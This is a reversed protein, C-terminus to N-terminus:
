KTSYKTNMFPSFVIQKQQTCILFRNTITSILSQAEPHRSWVSLSLIVPSSGCVAWYGLRYSPNRQGIFATYNVRIINKGKVTVYISSKNSNIQGM